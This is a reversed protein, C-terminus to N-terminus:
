AGDNRGRECRKCQVRGDLRASLWKGCQPCLLGFYKHLHDSLLWLPIFVICGVLFFVPVGVLVLTTSIHEPVPVNKGVAVLLAIEFACLVSGWLLMTRQFRRFSVQLESKNDRM